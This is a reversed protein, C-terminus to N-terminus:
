TTGPFYPLVLIGEQTVHMTANAEFEVNVVHSYPCDALIEKVAKRTQYKSYQAAGTLVTGGWASGFVMLWFAYRLAMNKLQDDPSEITNNSKYKLQNM